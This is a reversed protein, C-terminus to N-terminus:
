HHRTYLITTRLIKEFTLSTGGWITLSEGTGLEHMNAKGVVIAGADILTQVCWSTPGSEFVRKTGLKTEYGEVDVEDKVAIPVGDLLGLPKGAKWREASSKAGALVAEERTQVFAISHSTAGPVVRSVLPLICEVVDVPTISGEAYAHHYDAISPFHGKKEQTRPAQSALDTDAAPLSGASSERSQLNTLNIVTPDFRPEFGHLEPIGRLRGFGANSWLYRSLFNVSSVRKLAHSVNARTHDQNNTTLM